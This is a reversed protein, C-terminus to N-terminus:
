LTEGEKIAVVSTSPTVLYALWRLIPVARILHVVSSKMRSKQSLDIVDFRDLSRLGRSRLEKRLGYFTFWNVAPYTAYGAIEPRTTRAVEVYHRKLFGPYWSYLPLEFEQQKPCLKNTTTILLVGGPRLIRAFEDLCERWRVVHELLEPVFCVDMSASSWPVASASGVRFDIVAGCRKSREKALEILKESVDLAHVHHGKSAWLLSQTGAGCGIDAVELEGSRRSLYRKVIESLSNFRQLSEERDSAQSYYDFFEAYNSHNWGLKEQEPDPMKQVAKLSL